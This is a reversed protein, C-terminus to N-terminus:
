QEEKMKKNLKKCRLIDFVLFGACAAIGVSSVIILVNRTPIWNNKIDRLAVERNSQVSAIAYLIHKASDKMALKGETTAKLGADIQKEGVSLILDTGALIAKSANMWTDCYNDTVIAGEMGWENRVIQTNLGYSAGCWNGNIWMYSAMLGRAHGGKVAYEFPKLYIERAVQETMYCNQKNTRNAETDNFAFHKAFVYLGKSQVGAIEAAGMKGALYPDESFYEANRGGFTSRHTNLGPAYWGATGSANGERGITEGLKRVLDVNFTSAMVVETCYSMCSSNNEGMSTKIYNSLGFPGDIDEMTPKQIYEIGANGWGGTGILTSIEAETLQSVFDEWLPDDYPINYMDEFMIGARKGMTTDTSDGYYKTEFKRRDTVLMQYVESDETVVRAKLMGMGAQVVEHETELVAVNAFDGKRSLTEIGYDLEAKAGFNDKYLVNEAPVYDSERKNEGSYVIKSPINHTYTKDTSITKWSHANESLYFHYDGADLIYAGKNENATVDYSAIDELYVELTLTESAGPELIETKDFACLSVKSKEVGGEIYPAEVYIQVVEKGAVDGTNTVKVDFAVSDETITPTKAFEHKFTTYSTGYGFPYQVVSDYGTYPHNDWYGEADATEYWRYGVYIGESYETFGGIDTYKDGDKTVYNYKDSSYYTSNTKLDYAYTDVLRGSPNVTGALINGIGPTGAAGPGGIWLCADVGYEAQEVFGLEMPYSSNILVVTKFGKTELEKLLEQENKNLALYHGKKDSGFGYRSIDGGEGGLRGITVVAVDSYAKLNEFSNEGTYKDLSLEEVAHSSGGEDVDTDSITSNKSVLEYLSENVQFGARELGAKLTVPKMKKPDSAASGAANYSLDVSKVGFLNIKSDKALPLVGNNELLVSGEEVLDESIEIAEAKAQEQLEENIITTSLAARMTNAFHADVVLAAIFVLALISAIPIYIFLKPKRLKM